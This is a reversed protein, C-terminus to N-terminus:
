RAEIITRGAKYERLHSPIVLIVLRSSRSLVEVLCTLGNETIANNGHIDLTELPNNTNLASALSAVGTDTMCCGVVGLEKLTKNLKLANFLTELGSAGLPNDNLKLASLLSTNNLLDAIHSAGEEHIENGSLDMNHQRNVTSHCDIHRSISCMLTMTGADGLSCHNVYVEFARVNSTTLSVTSLFYGLALCDVLTLSTCRLDLVNGLQEAVFQCLSTDRAEYLCHLLSVLLLKSRKTVMKRVLDLVGAPVPCLWRPLKSLFPRSARLKTIAAYYCFVNSFRPEEFLSNFTSIQESAPLKSIYVASLFEQVSLHIFNYYVTQGESLISPTAQLLGMECIVASDKVAEIDSHSFTVKNEATGKFALRCMEDFAGQIEPPLNDLSVVRSHQQTKGLKECLYRSLFHRVFSSFIGHVTDPLSGDSLYLHAVISANLPLFCSGEIAPNESLRELLADVAKTDGKLCETFYQRQEESSFGLVEIRSSVLQSLDGSSIPRSTVIVSSLTIPSIHPPAIMDRLFSDHQFHLPLEDWGDMVWLIGRGNGAKIASAVQQATEIDPCPLLDAISKASQVAPDRLQVLIVITFEQFLEGKSWGQTIHIALTSKGSGPAGDILIVKREGEINRFINKLDIPSKALLIDDIQGRISKLVFEDNIKGHHFREKKIIALNFFQKTPSPLWKKSASAVHVQM